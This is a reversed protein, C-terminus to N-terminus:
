KPLLPGISLIGKIQRSLNEMDVLRRDESGASGPPLQTVSGAQRVDGCGM